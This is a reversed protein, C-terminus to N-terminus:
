GSSAITWLEGWAIANGISRVEHAKLKWPENSTALCSKNEQVEQPQESLQAPVQPGRGPRSSQPSSTCSEFIKENHQLYHKRGDKLISM